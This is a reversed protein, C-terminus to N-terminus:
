MNMQSCLEQVAKKIMERWNEGHQMEEFHEEMKELGAVCPHGPSDAGVAEMFKPFKAATATAFCVAIEGEPCQEGGAVSVATHPCLAYQHLQWARKAAAIAQDQPIKISTIKHQAFADMLSSPLTAQGSSEYREMVQKTTSANSFFYIVRELNHPCASDLACAHTKIVEDQKVLQGEVFCKYGYDNENVVSILRVPVGMRRALSGGAINGYAGCPVYMNVESTVSPAVKLYAYIFHISQFLVRSINISNLWILNHKKVFDHEKCFIDKIDQDFDDSASDCAFTHLNPDHITTMQLRQLQSVSHRPFLVVMGLNKNGKFSHIAASGTDGLTGVLGVGKTNNRKMIADFTKSMLSLSYDKFAGTPGHWLELLNIKGLPKITLLEPHHFGAFCSEM